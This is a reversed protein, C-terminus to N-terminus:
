FPLHNSFALLMIVYSIIVKSNIYVCLATYMDLLLYIFIVKCTAKVLILPKTAGLM